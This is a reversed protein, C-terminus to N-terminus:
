QGKFNKKFRLGLKVLIKHIASLTCHKGFHEKIEQLTIDPKENVLEILAEREEPSFCSHRHGNPKPTLRGEKLYIDVWNNISDVSYGMIAAVQDPTATKSLVANVAKTRIEESAFKMGM